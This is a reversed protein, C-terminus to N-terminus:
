KRDWTFTAGLVRFLVLKRKFEQGLWIQICGRSRRLMGADNSMENSRSEHLVGYIPTLPRSRRPNLMRPFCGVRRGLYGKHIADHASVQIPDIIVNHSIHSVESDSSHTGSISFSFHQLNESRSSTVQLSRM